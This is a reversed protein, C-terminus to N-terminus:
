IRLKVAGGANSKRMVRIRVRRPDPAFAVGEAIGAAVAPSAAAAIVTKRSLQSSGKLQLNVRIQQAHRRISWRSFYKM